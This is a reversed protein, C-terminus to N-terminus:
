GGGRAVFRAVDNIIRVLESQRRIALKEYIRKIHHRATSLAIGLDEAAEEPSRGSAITAAVKVEAATLGLCRLAERTAQEASATRRTEHFLVLIAPLDDMFADIGLRIESNRFPSARVLLPPRSGDGVLAALDPASAGAVRRAVDALLRDIRAADAANPATLRGGRLSIRPDIWAEMAANTKLIRGHASLILGPCDFQELLAAEGPQLARMRAYIDLAQHLHSTLLSFVDRSWAEPAPARHSYQVSIWLKQKSGVTKLQDLSYLNENKILFDNYFAHRRLEREEMIDHDSFVVDAFNNSTLWNKRPNLALYHDLYDPIADHFVASAYTVLTPDPMSTRSLPGMLLGKGGLMDALGDLVTPLAAPDTAISYISSVADRLRRESVFPISTM